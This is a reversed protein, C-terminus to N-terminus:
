FQLDNDETTIDINTTIDGFRFMAKRFCNQIAINTVNKWSIRILRMVLFLDVQKSNFDIENYFNNIILSVLEKRYNAKFSCIIGQDLPQLVSTVNPPFYVVKINSLDFGQNHTSCNDM